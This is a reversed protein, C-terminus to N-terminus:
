IPLESLDVCQLATLSMRPHASTYSGKNKFRLVLHLDIALKM